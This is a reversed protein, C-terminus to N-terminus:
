YSAHLIMAKKIHFAVILLDCCKQVARVIIPSVCCPRKGVDVYPQREANVSSLANKMVVLFIFPKYSDNHKGYYCISRANYSLFSQWLAYM